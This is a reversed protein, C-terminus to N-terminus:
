FERSILEVAGDPGAIRARLQLRDGHAIPLDVGLLQFVRQLENPHPTSVEFRILSLGSPADGAPHPSDANWEILIPLLSEVGARWFRTRRPGRSQRGEALRLM